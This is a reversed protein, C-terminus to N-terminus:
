VLHGYRDRWSHSEFYKSAVVIGYEPAVLKGFNLNLITIAPHIPPAEKKLSALGDGENRLRARTITIVEITGPADVSPDREDVYSWGNDRQVALAHLVLGKSLRKRGDRCSEYEKLAQCLVSDNVPLQVYWEYSHLQREVWGKNFTDRYTAHSSRNAEPSDILKESPFGGPIATSSADDSPGSHLDHFFLSRIVKRKSIFRSSADFPPFCWEPLPLDDKLMISLFNQRGVKKYLDAQDTNFAYEDTIPSDFNQIQRHRWQFWSQDYRDINEM